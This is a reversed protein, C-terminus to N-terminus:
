LSISKIYITQKVDTFVETFVSPTEVFRSAPGVM